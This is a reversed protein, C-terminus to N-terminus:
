QWNDEQEPLVIGRRALAEVYSHKWRLMKKIYRCESLARYVGEVAEDTQWKELTVIRPDDAKMCWATRASVHRLTGIWITNTVFGYVNDVLATANWPELLPECSVSTRFGAMWCRRLAEIRQTIPPANPEWRVRGNDSWSGISFRFMVQEKFPAAVSCLAAGTEPTPKSVILVRNGAHLLGDLVRCAEGVNRKTIDHTTPFMIVGPRKRFSLRDKGDWTSCKSWDEGRKIKGFRLANQRAYCYLCGNECGLQFNVSSESWEKTGTRKANM